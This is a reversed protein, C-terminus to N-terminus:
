DEIAVIELKGASHYDAFLSFLERSFQLVVTELM